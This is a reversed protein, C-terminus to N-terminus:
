KTSGSRAAVAPAVDVIGALNKVLFGAYSFLGTDIGGLAINAAEQRIPVGPLEYVDAASKAVVLTHGAPLASGAPAGVITFGDLSGDGSLSLASNLYGLVNATSTKAMSKWLAGDVVAGTPKLGAAIIEYAGDILASWGPGIDAPPTDAVIDTASTLAETLVLNDLWKRYDEVMAAYYSEWYGPTNFDRHERAHDHGGAWYAASETVPEVTPPNSPIPTKNGLWTGGAPKILWRWGSFTAATLDQHGFLSAFLPSYEVGSEVEGIWQVPSAVAGIGGAGSYKIDALAFMEGRSVLAMGRQVLDVDDRSGLGGHIRTIASFMAHAGIGQPAEEIVVPTPAPLGTPVTADAVAEEKEEASEDADPEESVTTDETTEDQVTGLAFLAASAFAGDTVLAAGVLRARVANVGDRVLDVVEASLKSLRGSQVAALADDGEDTEAVAFTAVIGADTDELQAARGAWTFRDHQNNLGVMTVDRPVTITGASFMIPDTGTLNTRSAEGYPILLGRITRDEINAFLEGHQLRVPGPHDHIVQTTVPSLGRRTGRDTRGPDRLHHRVPSAARAPRRRGHVTPARDPRDLLAPDARPLILAARRRHRLDPVRDAESATEEQTQQFLTPPIPSRTRAVWARDIARAGRITDRGNQLLGGGTPGPFYIVDKADVPEEAILIRGDGDVAWSEIPVRTANLLFGEADNQRLWLSCDYFLLDDITFAMRHWPTVIDTRYAWTPQTALREDGRYAILPLDAISGVLLDRARTVAPVKMANARDVLEPMDGFIDDIVIQTLQTQPQQWWLGTIDTPRDWPQVPATIPAFLRDWLGM